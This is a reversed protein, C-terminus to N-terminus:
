QMASNTTGDLQGIVFNFYEPDTQALKVPDKYLAELGMSLVETMNTVYRKGTYDAYANDGWFRDFSDTNAWEIVNFGWGPYKRMMSFTSTGAQEERYDRFARSAIERGPLDGELVHGMEHLM